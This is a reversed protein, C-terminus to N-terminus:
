RNDEKMVSEKQHYASAEANRKVELEEYHEVSVAGDDEEARDYLESREIVDEADALLLRLDPRYYGLAVNPETLIDRMIRQAHYACSLANDKLDILDDVTTSM